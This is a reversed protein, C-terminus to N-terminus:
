DEGTAPTSAAIQDVITYYLHKPTQHSTMLLCSNVDFSESRYDSHASLYDGLKQLNLHEYRGLTVHPYFSHEEKPLKLDQLHYDIEKKLASLHHNEEVGIWIAGRNGKTNFCGFRHLVLSFNQFFIFKLREQIQTVIHDPLPGFYRLTLHFNELEVWRILPLGYCFTVLEKRIKLPLPLAFFHPLM